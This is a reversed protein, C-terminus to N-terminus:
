WKSFWYIFLLFLIGSIILIKLWWKAKELEAKATAADNIKRWEKQKKEREEATSILKISKINKFEIRIDNLKILLDGHDHLKYTGIIEVEDELNLKTLDINDPVLKSLFEIYITFPYIYNIIDVSYRSLRKIKGRLCIDNSPLSKININQIQLETKGRSLERKENLQNIVDDIFIHNKIQPENTFNEEAKENIQNLIGDKSLM